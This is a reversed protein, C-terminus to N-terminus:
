RSDKMRFVRGLQASYREQISYVYVALIQHRKLPPHEISSVPASILELPGRTETQFKSDTGTVLCLVSARYTGTPEQHKGM